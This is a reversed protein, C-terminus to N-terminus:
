GIAVTYTKDGSIFWASGTADEALLRPGPEGDAAVVILRDESDGVLIWNGDPSWQADDFRYERGGSAGFITRTTGDRERTRLSPEGGVRYGLDIATGDSRLQRDQEVEYLDPRRRGLPSGDRSMIEDKVRGTRADLVLSREGNESYGNLVLDGGSTWALRDISYFARDTCYLERPEGGRAEVVFVCRSEGRGRFFALSGPIAADPEDRLSPFSTPLARGFGIIVGVVAVSIATAILIAVTQRQKV